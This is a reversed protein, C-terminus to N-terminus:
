KNYKDWNVFKPIEIKETFELIIFDFKKDVIDYYNIYINEEFFSWNTFIFEKHYECIYKEFEKYYFKDLTLKLNKIYYVIWDYVEKRVKESKERTYHIKM